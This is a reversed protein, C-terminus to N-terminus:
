ISAKFITKLMMFHLDPPVLTMELFPWKHYLFFLQCNEVSMATPPPRPNSVLASRLLPQLIGTDENGHGVLEREASCM